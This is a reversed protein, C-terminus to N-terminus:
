MGLLIPYRLLRKIWILGRQYDEVSGGLNFKMRLDGLPQYSETRRGLMKSDVLAEAEKYKGEAVLQKAPTLHRLAEYNATDRPFGSWLTDENLQILEEETGGFIMGGLRGNGVPLAEEWEAAPQKYWLDHVGTNKSEGM